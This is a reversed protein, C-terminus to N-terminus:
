AEVYLSAAFVIDRRILRAGDDFKKFLEDNGIAKAASQMEDILESLRRIVRIISGEFLDCMGTLAEFTAGNAWAYVVNILSGDFRGVFDREDTPIRAANLAAALARAHDQVAHYPAMLDAHVPQAKKVKEVQEAILITSQPKLKGKCRQVHDELSKSLKDM